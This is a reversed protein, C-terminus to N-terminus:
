YISEEFSNASFQFYKCSESLEKHSVNHVGSIFALMINAVLKIELVDSMFHADATNLFLKIKVKLNSIEM